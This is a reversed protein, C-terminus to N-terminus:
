VVREIRFIRMEAAATEAIVNGINAEADTLRSELSLMRTAYSLVSSALLLPWVSNYSFNCFAERLIHPDASM